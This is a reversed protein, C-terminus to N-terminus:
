LVDSIAIYVSHRWEWRCGGTTDHSDELWTKVFIWLKGPRRHDRFLIEWRAFEGSFDKSTSDRSKSPAILPRQRPWDEARERERERERERQPREKERNRWSEQMFERSMVPHVRFRTRRTKRLEEVPSRHHDLVIEFQIEAAITYYLRARPKSRGEIAIPVLSEYSARLRTADTESSVPVSRRFCSFFFSLFFSLLFFSLSVRLSFSFAVCLLWSCIFIKSTRISSVFVMVGERSSFWRQFTFNRSRNIKRKKLPRYSVSAETFVEINVEIDEQKANQNISKGNIRSQIM